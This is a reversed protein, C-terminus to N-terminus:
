PTPTRGDDTSDDHNGPAAQLLLDFAAARAQMTPGGDDAHDTCPRDAGHRFRVPCGATTCRGLPPTTM